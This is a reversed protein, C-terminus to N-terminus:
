CRTSPPLSVILSPTHWPASLASVVRSLSSLGSGPVDPRGDLTNLILTRVRANAVLGGHASVVVYRGEPTPYAGEDVADALAQVWVMDVGAPPPTEVIRRILDGCDAIDRFL